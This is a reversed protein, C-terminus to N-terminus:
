KSFLYQHNIWHELVAQTILGKNDLYDRGQPPPNLIPWLQTEREVAVSDSFPSLSSQQILLNLPLAASKCVSFWMCFCISCGQNQYSKSAPIYYPIQWALYHKDPYWYALIRACYWQCDWGVPHSSSDTVSLLELSHIWSKFHIQPPPKLCQQTVTTSDNYHLLFIYM